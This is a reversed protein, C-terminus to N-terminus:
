ATSSPSKEAPPPSSSPPRSSRACSSLVVGSSLGGGLISCAGLPLHLLHRMSRTSFTAALTTAASLCSAFVVGVVYVRAPMVTDLLDALIWAVLCLLGATVLKRPPVTERLFVESASSMM